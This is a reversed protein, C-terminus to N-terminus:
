PNNIDNPGYLKFLDFGACNCENAWRTTQVWHDSASPTYVNSASPLYLGSSDPIPILFPNRNPSNGNTCGLGTPSPPGFNDNWKIYIYQGKYEMRCLVVHASYQETEVTNNDVQFAVQSVPFVPVGGFFSDRITSDANTFIRQISNSPISTFDFANATAALAAFDAVSPASSPNHPAGNVGGDTWLGTAKWYIYIRGVDVARAVFCVSKNCKCPWQDTDALGIQYFGQVNHDCGHFLDPHLKSM